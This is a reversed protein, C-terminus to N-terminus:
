MIVSYEEDHTMCVMLQICTRGFLEILRCSDLFMDVQCTHYFNGQNVYDLECNEM